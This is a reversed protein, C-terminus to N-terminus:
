LAGPHHRGRGNRESSRQQERGPAQVWLGLEKTVSGQGSGVRELPTETEAQAISLVEGEDGVLALVAALRGRKTEFDGVWM